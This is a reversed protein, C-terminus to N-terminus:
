KSTINPVNFFLKKELKHRNRKRMYITLHKKEIFM